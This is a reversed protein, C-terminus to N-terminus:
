KEVQTHLYDLIGLDACAESLGLQIDKELDTKDGFFRRRARQLKAIVFVAYGVSRVTFLVEQWPLSSRAARFSRWTRRILVRLLTEEHRLQDAQDGELFKIESSTFVRAYFGHKYANTNGTPAGVKKKPPPPPVNAPAPDNVVSGVSLASDKQPKDSPSPEVPSPCPAVHSGEGQEVRAEVVGGEPISPSTTSAATGGPPDGRYGEPLIHEAFQPESGLPTAEGEGGLPPAARPVIDRYGSRSAGQTQSREMLALMSEVQQERRDPDGFATMRVQIVSELRSVAVAIINMASVKDHFPLSDEPEKLVTEAADFISLRLIQLEDKLSGAVDRDLALLEEPTYYRSYVGHKFANTNAPQGGRKKPPSTPM